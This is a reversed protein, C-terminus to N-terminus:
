QWPSIVPWLAKYRGLTMDAHMGQGGAPLVSVM